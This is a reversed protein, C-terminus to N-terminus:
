SPPAFFHTLLHQQLKEAQLQLKTARLIINEHLRLWHRLQSLSAQDLSQDDFFFQHNHHPCATQYSKQLRLIRTALQTHAASKAHSPNYYRQTYDIWIKHM